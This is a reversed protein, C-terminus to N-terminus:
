ERNNVRDFQEIEMKLQALTADIQDLESELSPLEDGRRLHRRLIQARLIVVTLPTRLVHM